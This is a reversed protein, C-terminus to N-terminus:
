VYNGLAKDPCVWLWFLLLLDIYMNLATLPLAFFVQVSQLNCFQTKKGRVCFHSTIEQRGPSSNSKLLSSNMGLLKQTSPSIRLLGWSPTQALSTYKVEPSTIWFLSYSNLSLLFFNFYFIYCDFFHLLRTVIDM